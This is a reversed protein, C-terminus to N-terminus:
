TSSDGWHFLLLSVQALNRHQIKIHTSGVLQSVCQCMYIESQHFSMLIPTHLNTFCTPLYFHQASPISTRIRESTWFHECLVITILNRILQKSSCNHNNYNHSYATLLTAVYFNVVLCQVSLLLCLYQTAPEIGATFM